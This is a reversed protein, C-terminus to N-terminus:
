GPVDYRDLHVCYSEAFISLRNWRAEAEMVKAYDFTLVFRVTRCQDDLEQTGLARSGYIGIDALLDPENQLASERVLKVWIGHIHQEHLWLRIPEAPWDDLAPWLDDAIIAIREINLLEKDQLEFNVTMSKRGPEDQWYHANKVWAVSRYLYLGSSRLLREYVIRWAETSEFVLTGSAITTFRQVLDDVQDLAIGRYIPDQRRSIKLLMETARRYRLFITEDGALLFPLELELPLETRLEFPKMSAAIVLGALLSLLLGIVVVLGGISLFGWALLVAVSSAGAVAVPRRFRQYFTQSSGLRNAMQQGYSLFHGAPLYTIYYTFLTTPPAARGKKNM